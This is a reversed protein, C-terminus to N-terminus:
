HRIRMGFIRRRLEEDSLKTPEVVKKKKTADGNAAKRTSSTNSPSFSPTGWVSSGQFMTKM